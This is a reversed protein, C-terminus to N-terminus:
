GRKWEEGKDDDEALGCLKLGHQLEEEPIEIRQDIAELMAGNRPNIGEDNEVAQLYARVEPVSSYRVRLFAIWAEAPIRYIKVGVSRKTRKIENLLVIGYLPGGTINDLVIFNM